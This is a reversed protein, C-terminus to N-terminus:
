TSVLGLTKLAAIVDGLTVPAAPQAVATAGYFGLTTSGGLAVSGNNILLSEHGPASSSISVSPNTGDSAFNADGHPGIIVGNQNTLNDLFAAVSSTGNTPAVAVLAADAASGGAATEIAIPTTVPNPIGGGGGGGGGSIPV